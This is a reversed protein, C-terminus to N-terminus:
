NAACMAQLERLRAQLKANEDHLTARTASLETQRVRLDRIFTAAGQLIHV